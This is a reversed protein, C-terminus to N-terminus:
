TLQEGYRTGTARSAAAWAAIPAPAPVFYPGRRPTGVERTVVFRSEGLDGARARSAEQAQV